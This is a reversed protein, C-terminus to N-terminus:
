WSCSSSAIFAVSDAFVPRTWLLLVLLIDIVQMCVKDVSIEEYEVFPYACAVERCSKLFLGDSLNRLPRPHKNHRHLSTAASNALPLTRTAYMISAKHVATVKDKKHTEAYQFAYQAVRRSAERTILKISQCM